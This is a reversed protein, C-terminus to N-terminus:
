QMSQGGTLCVARTAATVVTKSNGSVPANPEPPAFAVVQPAEPGVVTCNVVYPQTTLTYSYTPPPPAMLGSTWDVPLPSVTTPPASFTGTAVFQVEQGNNIATQTLTISELHRGPGGCGLALSAM